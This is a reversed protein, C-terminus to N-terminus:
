YALQTLHHLLPQVDDLIKGSGQVHSLVIATNGAFALRLFKIHSADFRGHDPSHMFSMSDSGFEYLRDAALKEGHDDTQLNPTHGSMRLLQAAFWFRILQISV